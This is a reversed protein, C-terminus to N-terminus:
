ISRALWIIVALVLLWLMGGEGELIGAAERVITSATKGASILLGRTRQLSIDLRFAGGLSELIEPNNHIYWGLVVSGLISLSILLWATLQNSDTRPLSFVILGLAPMSMALGYRARITTSSDMGGNARWAQLLQVVLAAMALTFALATVVALIYQGKAAMDAYLLVIGMNGRTLPVGAMSALFVILPIKFYHRFQISRSIGLLLGGVALILVQSLALVSESGSWAAAILMLGIQGYAVVRATMESSGPRSWALCVAYLIGILGVATLLVTLLDVNNEGNVAVTELLQIGAISPFLWILASTGYRQEDRSARWWHLPFAGLQLVVALMAWAKAQNSWIEQRLPLSFLSPQAAAALVLFLLGSLLLATKRIPVSNDSDVTSSFKLLLFYTAAVMAWGSILAPLTIAWISVMVSVVSLLIVAALVNDAPGNGPAPRQASRGNPILLLSSAALILLSLCTLWNRADISYRLSVLGSGMVELDLAATQPLLRGIVLWLVLALFVIATGATLGFGPRIRPIFISIISGSLLLALFLVLLTSM